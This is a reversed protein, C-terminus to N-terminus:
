GGGPRPSRRERVRAADRRHVRDRLRTGDGATRARPRAGQACAGIGAARQRQVAIVNLGRDLAHRAERAAYAGPTSVLVLNADGMRDLAGDLTRPRWQGGEAPARKRELAEGARALADEAAAEGGARVAVVLDNPGAAEGASALLGAERMIELNPPTGVMAVADEVGAARRPGGLDAMLAVSDLYFGRRVENVVVASVGRGDGRRAGGRGARLLRAARERDRGGGARGRSGTPSVPTITPALGSAVVKRVDIGTPTGAFDLAPITWEPNRAATIEYMSRTTGLATSASGAGVFGAVAPSAAMAFGGLGITEVITSDGMDPNADDETFGPFYLGRPMEVPATFWREGTGALRVGFDTGNRSM